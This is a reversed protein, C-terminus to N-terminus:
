EFHLSFVVMQPILKNIADTYLYGDRYMANTATNCFKLEPSLKFYAFYIDLGFGGEYGYTIPVLSVVPSNNSRNQNKTSALDYSMRVGGIVYARINRRRASKYKLLLSGDCYASEIKVVKQSGDFQYTLNRQAFSIQPLMVRIDFSKSIRFNTLAGLGIGPFSTQNVNRLSDHQFFSYNPDVRVSANNMTLSFGFHIWKNDYQEKNPQAIVGTVTAVLM